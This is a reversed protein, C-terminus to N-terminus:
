LYAVTEEAPRYETHKPSPTADEAAYGFPMLLVPHMNKPLALAETLAAQDFYGVLCTGIGLSAAELMMHTIVITVDIEGYNGAGRQCVTDDNYCFVFCQPAGYICPSVENLKAMVEPSQAVYVMQPQSNVATPAVRGAEIIRDLDEAAVARDTFHRVSYRAKALSLFDM